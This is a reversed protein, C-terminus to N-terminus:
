EDTLGTKVPTTDEVVNKRKKTESEKVYRPDDGYQVMEETMGSTYPNMPPPRWMPGGEFMKFEKTRWQTPTDGQLISFLKWRYYVHENCRNDFLFRYMHNGKERQMLMAEFIPGERVVFEIVRHIIGLLTRDKPQSVRVTSRSLIEEIEAATLPPDGEQPLRNEDDSAPQANFPLGLFVSDSCKSWRAHQSFGPINLSNISNLHRIM